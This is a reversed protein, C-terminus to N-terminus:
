LGGLLNVCIVTLIGSSMFVLTAIIARKSFRGIGCVGHGSTCGSGIRVGFGGLVGSIITLLLNNSPASPVISFLSSAVLSGLPLGLIFLWRWLRESLLSKEQEKHRPLKAANWFIGSIGAIRGILLMLLIVSCGIIIGGTLASSIDSMSILNTM